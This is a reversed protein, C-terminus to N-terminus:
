ATQPSPLYLLDCGRRFAALLAFFDHAGEPAVQLCAEKVPDCAVTSIMKQLLYLSM